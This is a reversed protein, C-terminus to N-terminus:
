WVSYTLQIPVAIIINQKSADPAGPYIQAAVGAKIEGGGVSKLIYVDFGIHSSDDKGLELGYAVGLGITAFSLPAYPNLSIELKPYEGGAKEGDGGLWAGVGAVVGFLDTAFQVGLGVSITNQNDRNEELGYGVGLDILLGDVATLKFAGQIVQDGVGNNAKGFYGARVLGIGDINYGVAYQSDKYVDEIEAAIYNGPPDSKPGDSGAPGTAIAAGIYLNAIPTIELVAGPKGGIYWDATTFRNFVLDPLDIGSGTYKPNQFSEFIDPGRLVDWRVWGIDLKFIDNPKWWAYLNGDRGPVAFDFNSIFGIKEGSLSFQVAFNPLDGWGVETAAGTKNANDDNGDIYTRLPVFTARGWAGVSFEAFLNGAVLALALLAIFFKKM